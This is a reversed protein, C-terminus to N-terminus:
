CSVPIPGLKRIDGQYPMGHEVLYQLAALSHAAMRRFALTVLPEFLRGLVGGKLEAEAQTTVLCRGANREVSWTNVARHMGPAGEGRYTFSADENWAVFTERITVRGLECVRVAGEGRSAAPCYARRIAPVWLPIRELDSLVRWTAELSADVCVSATISIM